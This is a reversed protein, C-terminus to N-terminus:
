MKSTYEVLEDFISKINNDSIKEINMEITGLSRTKFEINQNKDGLAQNKDTKTDFIYCVGKNKGSLIRVFEWDYVDRSITEQICRLAKAGTNERATSMRFAKIAVPLSEWKGAIPTEHSTYLFATNRGGDYELSAEYLYSENLFEEFTQLNKM